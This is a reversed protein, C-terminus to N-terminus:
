PISYRSRSPADEPVKRGWRPFPSTRGKSPIGSSLSSSGALQLPKRLCQGYYSAGDNRHSFPYARKQRKPFADRKSQRTDIFNWVNKLVIPKVDGTFPWINPGSGHKARAAAAVPDLQVQKLLHSRTPLHELVWCTEHRELWGHPAPLSALAM